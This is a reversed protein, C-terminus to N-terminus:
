TLIQVICVYKIQYLKPTIVTLGVSAYGKHKCYYILNYFQINFGSTM